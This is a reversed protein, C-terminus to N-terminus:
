SEQIIKSNRERKRFAFLANAADATILIEQRSLFEPKIYYFSSFIQPYQRIMRDIEVTRFNGLGRSMRSTKQDIKLQSFYRTAIQTQPLPSLLTVVSIDVGITLFHEHLSLTAQLDERTEWPFGVIFSTKVMIGSVVAAEITKRTEAIDLNKGILKQVRQSGSEIGFLIGICGARKMDSFTEAEISDARLNCIWNISSCAEMTRLFNNLWDGEVAFLDQILTITSIKHKRAVSNIQEVLLDPSKQRRHRYWFKSTSCFSCGYPCGRGAELPIFKKKLRYDGGFLAEEFHPYAQYDPLPLSDLDKLLPALPTSIIKGNTRYTLNSIECPKKKETIVNVFELIASDAEGRVVYDIWPFVAMSEEAVVTAQPGGLVICTSPLLQKVAKALLLILPYSVCMTSFGVCDPNTVVTEAAWHKIKTDTEVKDVAEEHPVYIRCDHGADSLIKYLTLLGLPFYPVMRQHHIVPAAVLVIHM